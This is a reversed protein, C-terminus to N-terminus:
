LQFLYFISKLRCRRGFWQDLNIKMECFHKEYHERGLHMFLKAGGFLLAVLASVSIYTLVILRCRIIKCFHKKYCRDFKCLGYTENFLIAMLALVLFIFAM